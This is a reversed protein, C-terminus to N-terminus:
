QSPEADLLKERLVAAKESQHSSEYLKILEGMAGQTRQHDEGVEGRCTEIRELYLREAEDILGLDAVTGALRLAARQAQITTNPIGDPEFWECSLEFYKRADALQGQQRLASALELALVAATLDGEPARGLADRLIQEAESYKETRNLAQGLTTEIRLTLREFVRQERHTDAEEYAKRCDALTRSLLYEGDEHAGFKSLNDGFRNNAVLTNPDQDGLKDRLSKAIHRFEGEVESWKEPNLGMGHLWMAAVLTEPNNPGLVDSRITHSRRFHEEMKDSQEFGWYNLALRFHMDAQLEPWDSLVDDIRDGARDLLDQVERFRSGGPMPEALGYLQENQSVMAFMEMLFANIATARAAEARADVAQWVAVMTGSVLAVAAVAGGIALAKNRRAFKRLQYFTSAPRAVIPQDDLHRRVDAALEAASQYRRSKDKELAKAAITDLDGRWTRDISSLPRPDEERILRVAEPITKEQLDHPLRGCLLEYLMVGLSYVDSRTDLESPDGGVQEPSMYPVTGILQGIDTQVTTAKIDSDTVRAVGFDLIKPEGFDDVLINDPKLDRHIVGKHHAFQVADCIKAFLALRSRTELSRAECYDILPEGQILEMAFYPQAGEGGDFSGADYIQAINPHHLKGLTEAEHQFRKIAQRSVAGQRLLKLAVLRHPHDQAAEYVTGMGGSGIAHRLEFRGIKRPVASDGARDRTTVGVAPIEFRAEARMDLSVLRRVRDRLDEDGGCEAEIFATREDGAHELADTVIRKVQSWRDETM